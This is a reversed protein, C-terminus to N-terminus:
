EKWFPKRTEAEADARSIGIDKLLHDDLKLLAQRQRWRDHAAFVYELAKWLPRIGVTLVRAIVPATTTSSSLGAPRTAETTRM